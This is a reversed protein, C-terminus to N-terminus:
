SYQAKGKVLFERSFSQQSKNGVKTITSNLKRWDLLVKPLKHFKM